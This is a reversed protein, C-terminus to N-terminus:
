EAIAAKLVYDLKPFEAKLYANGESQLRGQDPGRGRPAGEGYGKYLGDVIDMGEVVEGLPSFGMRDLNANDRYNIFLQTTRTNPGGTAFTIRGRLNSEAVPDDTIRAERFATNTVPEGHIGFQVMFGDIARFFSVDTFYGAKALNYLRDAGIPAWERHVRIVFPGKTTTFQVWYFEPATATMSAPNALAEADVAAETFETPTPPYEPKPPPAPAPAPETAPTPEPTVETSGGCAILMSLMVISLSHFM